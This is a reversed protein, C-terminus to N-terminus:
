DSDPAAVVLATRKSLIPQQTHYSSGVRSGKSRFRFSFTLIASAVALVVLREQGRDLVLCSGEKWYREQFAIRTDVLERVVRVTKSWKQRLRLDCNQRVVLTLIRAPM